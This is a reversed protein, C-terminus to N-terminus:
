RRYRIAYGRLVPNAGGGLTQYGGLWPNYILQQQTSREEFSVPVIADAGLQAAKKQMSELLQPLSVGAWMRTELLAIKEYPRNPAAQLIEVRPNAAFETGTDLRVASTYIPDGACGALITACLVLVGTMKAM